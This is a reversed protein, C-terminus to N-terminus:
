FRPLSAILYKRRCGFTLLCLSRLKLKWSGAELGRIFLKAVEMPDKKLMKGLVLAANTAYDGHEQNEPIEVSFDPIVINGFNNRVADRIVNKLEDRIM